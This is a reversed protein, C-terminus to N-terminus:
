LSTGLLDDDVEPDHVQVPGTTTSRHCWISADLSSTSRAVRARSEIVKTVLPYIQVSDGDRTALYEPGHGDVDGPRRIGVPHEM